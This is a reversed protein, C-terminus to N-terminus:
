VSRPEAEVFGTGGLVALELALVEFARLQPRLTFTDGFGRTADALTSIAAAKYRPELLEATRRLVEVREFRRHPDGSSRNSAIWDSSEALLGAAEDPRGTMAFFLGKTAAPHRQGDLMGLLMKEDSRAPSPYRQTALSRLEREVDTPHSRSMLAWGAEGMFEPRRLGLMMVMRARHFEMTPFVTEEVFRELERSSGETELRKKLAVVLEYSKPSLRLIRELMPVAALEEDAVLEAIEKSLEVPYNTGGYGIFESRKVFWRARRAQPKELRGLHDHITLQWGDPRGESTARAQYLTSIPECFGMEVKPATVVEELRGGTQGCLARAALFLARRLVQTADEVAHDREQLWLVNLADLDREVSRSYNM